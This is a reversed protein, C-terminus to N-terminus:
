RSPTAAQPAEILARSSHSFECTPSCCQRNLTCWVGLKLHKGRAVKPGRHAFPCNAKKCKKKIDYGCMEDIREVVDEDIVSGTGDGTSAANDKHFGEDENVPQILDEQSISNRPEVAQHDNTNETTEIYKDKESLNQRQSDNTTLLESQNLEATSLQQDRKQVGSNANNNTMTSEKNRSEMSKVGAESDELKRRLTKVDSKANEYEQQVQSLEAKLQEVLKKAVGKTKALQESAQSSKNVEANLAQNLQAIEGDAKEKRERNETLHATIIKLKAVDAELNQQHNAAAEKSERIQKREDSLQRQLDGPQSRVTELTKQVEAKALEAGRREVDRERLRAAQEKRETNKLTMAGSHQKELNEIRKAHEEDKRRMADAFQQERKKLADAHEEEKVKMLDPSRADKQHPYELSLPYSLRSPQLSLRFLVKLFEILADKEKAEKRATRVRAEPTTGPWLIM